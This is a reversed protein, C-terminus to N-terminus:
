TSKFLPLVSSVIEEFFIQKINAYTKQVNTDPSIKNNISLKHNSSKCELYFFFIPSLNFMTKLGSTIRQLHSPEFYWNVLLSVLLLSFIHSSFISLNTFALIYIHFTAFNTVLWFIFTFILSSIPLPYVYCGFTTFYNNECTFTLSM